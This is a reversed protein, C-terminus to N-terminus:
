GRARFPFIADQKSSIPSGNRTAPHFHWNELAALCKSDIEPGLSQLVTKSIIDGREDITIEIVENGAVAPLQWPYVVPDSTAIPLAPRIEDGYLQGERLTGYPMGSHAGHGLVSLTQTKSKDQEEVRAVPSQAAPLKALKQPAKWIFKQGLREHKYRETAVDSSSHPSDDPNKSSWYLRTLSTGNQGLAVSTPTLLMPEPSHLLWGLIAAHVAVSAATTWRQRYAVATSLQEFM